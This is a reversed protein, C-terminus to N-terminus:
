ECVAASIRLERQIRLDRAELLNHGAERLVAPEFAETWFGNFDVERTGFRRREIYHGATSAADNRVSKQEGVRYAQEWSGIM